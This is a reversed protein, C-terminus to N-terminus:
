IGLNVIVQMVLDKVLQYNGIIHSVLAPNVLISNIGLHPVQHLLLLFVVHLVNRLLHKGFSEVAALHVTVFTGALLNGTVLAAIVVRLAFRLTPLSGWSLFSFCVDDPTGLVLFLM